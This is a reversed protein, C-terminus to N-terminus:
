RFGLDYAMARVMEITGLVLAILVCAWFALRNLPLVVHTEKHTIFISPLTPLSVRLAMGILLGAAWIIITKAWSQM